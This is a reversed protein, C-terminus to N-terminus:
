PCADTSARKIYIFICSSAHSSNKIVVTCYRDPSEFQLLSEVGEFSVLHKWGYREMQNLFFDIAQERSLPSKYGFTLTDSKITDSSSPIIREDFLPIPIDVLMAEQQIIVDLYTDKGNDFLQEIGKKQKSSDQKTCSSLLLCFMIMFCHVIGLDGKIPNM